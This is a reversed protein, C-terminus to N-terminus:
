KCDQVVTVGAQPPLPTGFPGAPANPYKRLSALLGSPGTAQNFQGIGLSIDAGTVVGDGTCDFPHTQNFVGIMSSIDAGTIQGDNSNDCLLNNDCADGCGDHDADAQTPNPATLCNDFANEVGDGDGDPGGPLPGGMSALPLGAVLLLGFAVAMFRVKM